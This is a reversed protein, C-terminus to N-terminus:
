QDEDWDDWNVSGYRRAKAPGNGAGGYEMEEDLNTQANYVEGSGALLGVQQQLMVVWMAPKQYEKKNM